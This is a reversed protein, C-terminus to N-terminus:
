ETSASQPFHRGTLVAGVPTLIGSRPPVSTTIQMLFPTWDAFTTRTLQRFSLSIQGTPFMPPGGTMQRSPGNQLFTGFKLFIAQRGVWIVQVDM